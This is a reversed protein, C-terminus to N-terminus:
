EVMYSYSVDNNKVTNIEVNIGLDRLHKTGAQLVENLIAVQLDKSYKHADKFNFKVSANMHNLM